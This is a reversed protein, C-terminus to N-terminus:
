NPIKLATLTFFLFIMADVIQPESVTSGTVSIDLQNKVEMASSLM